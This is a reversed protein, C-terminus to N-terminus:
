STPLTHRKGTGNKSGSAADQAQLISIIVVPKASGAMPASVPCHVHMAHEAMGLASRTTYSHTESRFYLFVGCM